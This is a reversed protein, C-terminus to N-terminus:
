QSQLRKALARLRRPVSAVERRLEVVLGRHESVARRIAAHTEPRGIVHHEVLAERRLPRKAAKRVLSVPKRRKLIVPQPM